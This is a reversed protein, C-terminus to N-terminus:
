QRRGVGYWCDLNWHLCVTEGLKCRRNALVTGRKDRVSADGAACLECSQFRLKEPLRRALREITRVVIWRRHARLHYTGLRHAAPYTTGASGHGGGGRGSKGWARLSCSAFIGAGGYTRRSGM